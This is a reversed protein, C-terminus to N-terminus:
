VVSKRDLLAVRGDCLLEQLLSMDETASRMAIERASLDGLRRLTEALEAPTRARSKGSLAEADIGREGSRIIDSLELDRAHAGDAASAPRDWVYMFESNFQFEMSSAFPSPSPSSSEAIQVDGSQVGALLEEALGADLYDQKCERITEAVVPFGPVRRAMQLLDKAKLRQLWLPSRKGPLGPPFLLARAANQRFRLGFLPSQLLGRDLLDRFRAPTLRRVIGAPVDFDAPLRLLVGDDSAMSEPAAGTEDRMLEVLAIRLAQHVRSGYPTIVALRGEGLADSIRHTPLAGHTKQRTVLAALNGAADADAPTTERIWRAM